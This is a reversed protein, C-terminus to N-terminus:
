TSRALRHFTRLFGTAVGWGSTSGITLVRRLFARSRREDARSVAAALALYERAFEGRAAQRLWAASRATTRTAATEALTERYAVWPVTSDVRALLDLALCTGALLDDGLPTLGPGLGALGAARELADADRFDRLTRLLGAHLSRLRPLALALFPDEHPPAPPLEALLRDALQVSPAAVIRRRPLRPIWYRLGPEPVVREGNPLEIRGGGIRLTTGVPLLEALPRDFEVQLGDPPLLTRPGVLSIWRTGDTLYVAQPYSAVAELVRGPGFLIPVIPSAIIRLKRRM